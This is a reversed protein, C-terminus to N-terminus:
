VIVISLDKQDGTEQWELENIYNAKKNINRKLM